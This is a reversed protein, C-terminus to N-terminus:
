LGACSVVAQWISPHDQHPTRPNPHALCYDYSALFPERPTTTYEFNAALVVALFSRFDNDPVYSFFTDSVCARSRLVIVVDGIFLHDERISQQEGPSYYIEGQTTASSASPFLVVNWM